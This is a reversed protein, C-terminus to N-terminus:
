RWLSGFAFDPPMTGGDTWAWIVGALLALALLARAVREFRDPQIPKQASMAVGGTVFAM